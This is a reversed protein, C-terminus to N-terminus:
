PAQAVGVTDLGLYSVLAVSIALGILSFLIVAALDRSLHLVPVPTSACFSTQM